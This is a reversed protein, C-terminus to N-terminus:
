PLGSEKRGNQNERIKSRAYLFLLISKGMSYVLKRNVRFIASIAHFHAYVAAAEARYQPTLRDTGSPKSLPEFLGLPDCVMVCFLLPTAM